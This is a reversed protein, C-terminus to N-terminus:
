QFAVVVSANPICPITNHAQSFWLIFSRLTEGQRQQMAHLDAENSPQSYASESNTTFQHCLQEWSTLSAEPLNMLWSLAMSTLAVPFYNAMVAENGGVALISSNYIQLFEAPNVSGGYKELLHPGSSANGSWWASTHPL